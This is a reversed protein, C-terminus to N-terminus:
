MSNKTARGGGERKVRLVTERKSVFMDGKHDTQTKKRRNSRLKHTRHDKKKMENQELCKDKRRTGGM